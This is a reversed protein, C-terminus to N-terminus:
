KTIEYICKIHTYKRAKSSGEAHLKHNKAQQQGQAEAKKLHLRELPQQSKDAKHHLIKQRQRQLQKYLQIIKCTQLM